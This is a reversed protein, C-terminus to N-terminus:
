AGGAARQKGAAGQAREIIQDYLATYEAQRPQVFRRARDQRDARGACGKSQRQAVSTDKLRRMM